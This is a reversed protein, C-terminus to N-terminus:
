MNESEIFKSDTESLAYDPVFKNLHFHVDALEEDSLPFFTIKFGDGHASFAKIFLKADLFEKLASYLSDRNKRNNKVSLDRVRMAFFNYTYLVTMASDTIETKAKELTLITREQQLVPCLLKALQSNLMNFSNQTILTIQENTIEDAPKNGLYIIVKADAAYPYDDDPVFDEPNTIIIRDVLTYADLIINKNKDILRFSKGPYSYLREAARKYYAKNPRPNLIRAFVSLQTIITRTKYFTQDINQFIGKQFFEMDIEDLSRQDSSVILTGGSTNSVITQFVSNDPLLLNEVFSDGNKLPELDLKEKKEGFMPLSFMANPVLQIYNNINGNYHEQIYHYSDIFVDSKISSFIKTQTLSMFGPFNVLWSDKNEYWEKTAIIKDAIVEDLSKSNFYLQKQITDCTQFNTITVYFPHKPDSYAYSECKATVQNYWREKMSKRNKNQEKFAKALPNTSTESNKDLADQLVDYVLTNLNYKTEDFNSDYKHNEKYNTIFDILEKSLNASIDAVLQM